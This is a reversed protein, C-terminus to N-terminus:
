ISDSISVINHWGVYFHHARNSATCMESRRDPPRLETIAITTEACQLTPSLRFPMNCKQNGQGVSALLKAVAINSSISHPALLSCGNRCQVSPLHVNTHKIATTTSKTMTHLKLHPLFIDLCRFPVM